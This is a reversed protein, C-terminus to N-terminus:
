NELAHMILDFDPDSMEDVSLAIGDRLIYELAMMEPDHKMGAAAVMAGDVVYFAIFNRDHPDGRYIIEDWGTTHGVYRL